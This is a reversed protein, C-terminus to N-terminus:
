QEMLFNNIDNIEKYMQWTPNSKTKLYDKFLKIFIGFPTIFIFYFMLLIIRIQIDIIKQIVKKIRKYNKKM